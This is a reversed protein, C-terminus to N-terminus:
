AITAENRGSISIHFKSTTLISSGVTMKPPSVSYFLLFTLFKLFFFLTISVKNKLVIFIFIYIYIYIYIYIVLFIFFNLVPLWVSETIVKPNFLNLYFIKHEPEASVVTLNHSINSYFHTKVYSWWLLLNYIVLHFKFSSLINSVPAYSLFIIKNSALVGFYIYWCVGIPSSSLAQQSWIM